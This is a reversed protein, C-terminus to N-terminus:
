VPGATIWSTNPPHNHMLLVDVYPLYIRCSTIDHVLPLPRSSDTSLRPEHKLQGNRDYYSKFLLSDINNVTCHYLIAVCRTGSFM